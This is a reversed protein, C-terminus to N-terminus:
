KTGIKITAFNFYGMLTGDPFYSKSLLSYGKVRKTINGAKDINWDEYFILRSINRTGTIIKTEEKLTVPNIVTVTDRVFIHSQIETMGLPEKDDISNYARIAGSILGSILSDRFPEAASDSGFLPLLPNIAFPQAKVIQTETKKTVPDIAIITDSEYLPPLWSTTLEVGYSFTYSRQASTITVFSVFFVAILITRLTLTPKM